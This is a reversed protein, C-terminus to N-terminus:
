AALGNAIGAAEGLSQGVIAIVDDPTLGLARAAEVLRELDEGPDEIDRLCSVLAVAPLASDAEDGEGHHCAIPNRLSDPFSWHDCLLTSVEAHNIDLAQQELSMLDEGTGRWQELVEGYAVGKCLSILPVGIDSLLAATFSEMKTTPEIRAALAGAVSARRAASRWFLAPDFGPGAKRPLSQRAGASLLISEMQSRGLLSIAHGVNACERRLGYAPSNVVGLVRVTLGPDVAVVNAIETLASNPDRLKALARLVAEPFSPVEFDGLRQKLARKPDKTKKFWGFM